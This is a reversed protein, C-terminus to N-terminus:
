QAGPALSVLLMLASVMGAKRSSIHVPLCAEFFCESGAHGPNFSRSCVHSGGLMAMSLPPLPPKGLSTDNLNFKFSLANALPPFHQRAREPQQLHGM